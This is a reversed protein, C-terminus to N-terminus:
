APMRAIPQHPALRHVHTQDKGASWCPSYQHQARQKAAVGEHMQPQAALTLGLVLQEGAERGNPRTAGGGRRRRGAHLSSAEFAGVQRSPPKTRSCSTATHASSDCSERSRMRPPSSASWELVLAAPLRANPRRVVTRSPSRAAGQLLVDRPRKGGRASPARQQRCPGCLFFALKTVKQSAPLM